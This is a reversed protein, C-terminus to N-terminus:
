LSAHEVGNRGLQKVKYLARDAAEILMGPSCEELASATAGGISVSVFPGVGTENPIQLDLVAKRIREAIVESAERPTGPLIAAFEEGGFRAVLDGSRSAAARLAHAVEVLCRDGYPHGHVDNVNKFFDLDILLLSLPKNMRTARHWESDLTRDFCRRNAIGTLGDQLSLEELRDRAGQLEEQAQRFRIQLITMRVGYVALAVGIALIGTAFHDRLVVLGLTLLAVTFFVPSGLDIFLALRTKRRVEREFPGTSAPLCLILCALLIFPADVLFNPALHGEAGVALQNYVGVGIGYTTLFLSLIGYFRREDSGRPSALLRLVCGVVLVVNEVHYTLILLGISIPKATTESFPLRAFITVYTLYGAFVAQIGDLWTFLLFRRGEVPTSLAFLIPVGYFFFAFDALSAIEFPFHQLLDEWASLVMGVTWLGIGAALLAWLGRVRSRNTAAGWTCAVLACTPAALQFFYSSQVSRLTSIFYFAADAVVFGGALPALQRLTVARTPM